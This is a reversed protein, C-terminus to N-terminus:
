GGTVVDINYIYYECSDECPDQLANISEISPDFDSYKPALISLDPWLLYAILLLGSFSFLYGSNFKPTKM